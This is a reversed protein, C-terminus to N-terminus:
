SLRLRKCGIFISQSLVEKESKSFLKLIDSFALDSTSKVIEMSSSGNETSELSKGCQGTDLETANSISDKCADDIVGDNSASM